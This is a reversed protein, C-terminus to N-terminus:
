GSGSFDCFLLRDIGSQMQVQGCRETGHIAGLFKGSPLLLEDSIESSVPKSACHKVRKRLRWNSYTTAALDVLITLEITGLRLSNVSVVM